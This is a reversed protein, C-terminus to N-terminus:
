NSAILRPRVIHVGPSCNPSADSSVSTEILVRGNADLVRVRASAAFAEQDVVQAAISQCVNSAIGLDVPRFLLDTGVVTVDGDILIDGIHATWIPPVEGNSQGAIVTARFNPGNENSGSRRGEPYSQEPGPTPRDSTAGGMRKDVQTPELSQVTVTPQLANQVPPGPLEPSGCGQVACLFTALGVVISACIRVVSQRIFAFTM